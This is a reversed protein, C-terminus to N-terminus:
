AGQPLPSPHPTLFVNRIVVLVGELNGLVENDWFPLVQYGEACLWEDRVKDGPDMAHQGGDVEIIIKKELNVFDVVYKGIPQQRRFKFGEMQRNKLHRWLYAETDTSRKRLARATDRLEKVGVRRGGRLQSFTAKKEDGRYFGPDLCNKFAPFYQIGAEAPIVPFLGLGIKECGGGELLLAERTKAQQNVWNKM